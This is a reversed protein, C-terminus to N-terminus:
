ATTRGNKMLIGLPHKRIPIMLLSYRPFIWWTYPDSPILPAIKSICGERASSRPFGIPDPELVTTLVFFALLPHRTIQRGAAASFVLIRLEAPGLSADSFLTLLM